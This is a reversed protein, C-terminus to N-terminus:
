ICKYIYIYMCVYIMYIYIICTINNVIYIYIHINSYYTIHLEICGIAFWFLFCQFCWLAMRRGVLIPHVRLRSTWFSQSCSPLSPWPRLHIPRPGFAVLPYFILAALRSICCIDEWEWSESDASCCLAASEACCVIYYLSIYRVIM